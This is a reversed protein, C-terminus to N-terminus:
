ETTITHVVLIGDGNPGGTAEVHTGTITAGVVNLGSMIPNVYVQGTLGPVGTAYLALPGFPSLDDFVGTGGVSPGTHLAIYDAIVTANNVVDTADLIGDGNVDVVGSEGTLSSSIWNHLESKCSQAAGMISRMKSKKQMGLYNPIAIAALIGIIAVVIMLEILTFGKQNRMKSLM